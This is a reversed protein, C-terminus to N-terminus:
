FVLWVVAVWILLGLVMAFVMGSAAHLDDSEELFRQALDPDTITHVPM